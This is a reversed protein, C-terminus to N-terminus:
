YDGPESAEALSGTDRRPIEGWVVERKETSKGADVEFM